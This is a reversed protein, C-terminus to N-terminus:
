RYNREGARIATKLNNEEPPLPCSFQENYACYPNYALNFDLLINTAGPVKKLDLYRGAGYTDGTSTEDTFALFLTGRQPGSDLVELILLSHRLNGLDFSARAYTLYNRTKGDSTQIQRPERKMYELDATFRFAPNPDFYNLGKFSGPDAAFPSDAASRMYEDRDKREKIIQNRYDGDSTNSFFTYYLSIGIGAGILIAIITSNKM